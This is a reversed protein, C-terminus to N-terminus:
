LGYCGSNAFVNMLIANVRISTLLQVISQHLGVASLTCALLRKDILMRGGDVLLLHIIQEKLQLLPM